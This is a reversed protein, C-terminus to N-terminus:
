TAAKLQTKCTVTLTSGSTLGAAPSLEGYFAMDGADKTSNNFVGVETITASAGATWTHTWQCTDDTVTTTESSCTAAARTLGSATSETKLTTSAATQGTGTGVAMYTFADAAEDVLLKVAESYFTNCNIAM